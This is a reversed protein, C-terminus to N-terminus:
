HAPGDQQYNSLLVHHSAQAPEEHDREVASGTNGVHQAIRDLMMKMDANLPANDRNLAIGERLHNSAEEFRDASLEAMGCVFRQFPNTDALQLLPQWTLMAMSVRGSTFQLLGLQFRATEFTPALLVTNAYAAEAEEMKGGQALEAALLFHPLPNDPLDQIAAKLLRMATDIDGASSAQMAQQLVPPLQANTM